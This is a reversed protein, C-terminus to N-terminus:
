LLKLFVQVVAHLVAGVLVILRYALLYGLANLVGVLQVLELVAIDRFNDVFCYNGFM